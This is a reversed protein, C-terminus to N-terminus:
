DNAAPRYQVTAIPGLPWFPMTGTGGTIAFDVSCGGM